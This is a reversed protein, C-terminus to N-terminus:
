LEPLLICVFSASTLLPCYKSLYDYAGAKMIEVADEVNGYATMVVVDIQPNLENIKRVVVLGNWEPMRYDTLVIDIIESKAIDYGQPGNLATFVAYGRRELFSKMSKLQTEEDDIILIHLQNM